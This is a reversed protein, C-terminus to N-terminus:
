ALVLQSFWRGGGRWVDGVVLGAAAAAAAVGDVGLVAWPFAPGREGDRDLQVQLSRSAVGPGALEVLVCGGPRLLRASRALLGVADGGIGINGDLLLVTGWRGTGPIRDFISRELVLAGRARAADIAAPAADIGLAPVGREALAVVHRGPGCGLDVVPAQVRDLLALEEDGPADHWRDLDLPLVTGDEARLCADTPV